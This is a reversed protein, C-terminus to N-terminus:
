YKCHIVNKHIYKAGFTLTDSQYPVSPAWHCGTGAAAVRHEGAFLESGACCSSGLCCSLVTRCDSGVHWWLLFFGIGVALM